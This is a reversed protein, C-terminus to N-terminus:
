PPLVGRWSLRTVSPHLDVRCDSRADTRLTPVDNRELTALTEWAPHGFRNRRGCSLLAIKPALARVFADSTSTRSGHHGVKLVDARGLAGSALLESETPAGADGTLLASRGDRAFVAVVSQNNVPDIKRLRGGSHLVTLRGGEREWVARATLAHVPVGRRSAVAGLRGHFGGDDAGRNRWLAGVPLEEIVAFLGLAHDPHPHTLLVADLRTVGRDLLKPLLRTRGFDTATPDFPGGGDVLIARRRWRLLIADGQGVDLAEISFGRDPGTPGRRLALSLFLGGALGAALPRLRGPGLGAAALLAGVVLVGALPPTPRLFAMGGAREALLELARSGLAFAAPLPGPPIGCAYFLLLVAGGGILAGSLPISLPATLWAGAAVLNFRWLLIPATACEAALAVAFGSMLWEPREPLRARIPRSFLAIGCVAAFTLVTGLSFIERPSVLFLILASLGIAQAGTIPRELLRTALFISVVLGARVAPPNAGGVLVFLFVTALLWLDRPKGHVGAVGLLVVALGAALVVHLGSVVLLHYLGGRRYRAVMGRDLGSTRGLLLAALPGRVDRDFAPDEAGPDPLAAALRRNPLTLVSLLTPGEREMLRASKVSLRFRTWPLAIDRESAALDERELHGAIRVRDGRDAFSVDTRGSVFVVVEAPFPAAGGSWALREARLTTRASLPGNSWFDTLVGEVVTATRAAEPLRRFAEIALEAPRAVRIRASAFGCAIWFAGFALQRARRHRGALVFLGAASAGALAVAAAGGSVAWSGLFIGAVLLVAATAAPAEGEALVPRIV